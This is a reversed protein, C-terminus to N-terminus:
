PISILAGGIDGGAFMIHGSVTDSIGEFDEQWIVLFSDTVTSHAFRAFRQNGAGSFIDM